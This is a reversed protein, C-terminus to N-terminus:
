LLVAGIAGFILLPINYHIFTPICTDRIHDHQGDKNLGSTPGLTSDSAPSGADGLAGAVGVLLVIAAPSFGLSLGLPVYITAIIPITGFSTGIGLTIFLGIVLMILAPIFKNEGLLLSSAAVVDEIGGTAKIVSAFGSAVLMVFAIFGMMKIGSFVANDLKKYPIAEFILMIVLGLLVGLPLAGTTVDLTDNTTIIIQVLFTVFAGLLAGWQKKNLKSDVSIENKEIIIKEYERKNRYTIFIAFLLGITMALAPIAMVKWIENQPFDLGNKALEKAIIGQFIFGFGAPIFIYPMQLGYTLSCAAARRDIKIENMMPLLAPILIPIFAIHIPILNQSFCSIIALGLLFIKGKKGVVGEIKKALIHTLGTESIAYALTGLLVYSLATELNGSMGNIFIPLIGEEGFLPMRAVLGAVVASIMISLMINFKVLCLLIMIIIGVLVPNFDM